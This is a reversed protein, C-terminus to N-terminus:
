RPVKHLGDEVAQHSLVVGMGNHINLNVSSLANFAYLVRVDFWNLPVIGETLPQAPNAQDANTLNQTEPIPSISSM